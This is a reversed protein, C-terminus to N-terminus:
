GTKGNLSGFQLGTEIHAIHQQFDFLLGSVLVSFPIHQNKHTYHSFELFFSVWSCYFKLPEFVSPKNVMAIKFENKFEKSFIGCSCM